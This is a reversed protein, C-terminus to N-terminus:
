AADRLAELRVFAGGQRVWGRFRMGRGRERAREVALSVAEPRGMIEASTWRVGVLGLSELRAHREHEEELRRRASAEPAIITGDDPELSYKAQGDAEAFTRDGPWLGDVRGVFRFHEDHIAVQPLPMPHGEQLLTVFSFSELWSERSPDLLGLAERARPRGKWRTQADLEASVTAATVLGAAIARDTMAVSHPVKRTRLVDAVTRPLTTVRLGEVVVHPTAISDTHHIRVGHLLRSQPEDDVVTLEVPTDPAIVLELAHAVAASTHSAVCGPFRLLAVRLRNLHELRHLEWSEAAPDLDLPPAYLGRGVRRARGERVAAALSRRSMAGGVADRFTFPTPPLQADM